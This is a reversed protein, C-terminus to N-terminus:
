VNKLMRKMNKQYFPYNDRYAHLFKRKIKKFEEKDNIVLIKGQTIISFKANDPLKDFFTIDFSEDKHNIESFENPQTGKKRIIALDIDSTPKQKNKSYSGFLILAITNPNNKSKSIIEELEKSEDLNM